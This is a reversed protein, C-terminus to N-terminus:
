GHVLQRRYWATVSVCDFLPRAANEARRALLDNTESVSTIKRVGVGRRSRKRFARHQTQFSCRANFLFYIFILCM